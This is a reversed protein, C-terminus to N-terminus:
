DDVLWGCWSVECSCMSALAFTCCLLFLRDVFCFVFVSDICSDFMVYGFLMNFCRRVDFFLFWAILWIWGVLLWDILSSRCWLVCFCVRLVFM